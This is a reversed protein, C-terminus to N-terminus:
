TSLFIAMVYLLLLCISIVFGIYKTITLWALDEKAWPKERIETLIAYAGLQLNYSTDICKIVYIGYQTYLITM